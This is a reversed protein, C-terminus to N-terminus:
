PMNTAFYVQGDVALYLVHNPSVTVADASNSPILNSSDTTPRFQNQLELARPSFRMVTRTNAYMLLISQDPLAAFLMQTFHATSFLDIDQYASFPNVLPLPDQCQSVSSEVVPSFSCVSLHGDSHLMYLDDSAIILDIVDQTPTQKGFFFYPPDVFTGDKGNYVWVARMPADLVYLSGNALTIGTIHGWNTDPVPLPIVQPVTGPACYLLHGTADIGLLSANFSNLGPMALIDVLQGVTYSGYVGPRCNFTTDLQLGRGGPAPLARLVEGNAANLMFLDTENAAMRSINIGPKSSFAANFQLRTIGLLKDLNDNAEKRLTITESTENHTEAINVNRLVNEWAIRQEVPNTLALAQAKNELAQRLYTEYQESRGYRLYVVVLLTVVMLPILVAMFFMLTTSPLAPSAEANPLLRPLFGRFKEGASQSLKRTAQIGGALVRATQRTRQSPERPKEPEITKRPLDVKQEVAADQIKEIVSDPTTGIVPPNSQARPISSPFTRPTFNRPQNDLPDAQEGEIPPTEELQPPIAYASPQVYHASSSLTSPPEEVEPSFQQPTIEIEEHQPLDPTLVPPATEEIIREKIVETNGSVLNLKGAGDTVQILVSNLDDRTLTSLRRRMADLSSPGPNNLTSEWTKSTRGALLIRDGVSLNVQGYYIGTSQSIGLGKGSSDPEHIHRNENEGFWYIHMPGSITFTCQSDRLAALTLWGNAYQGRESTSMNRELLTQNIHETATRLANTLSGPTQYFMNAAGQAVQLYESASFVANGTLLLYAILRDQTRVRAANAPPNLALLGPLSAIEQGNIRYLPSLNIDLAM